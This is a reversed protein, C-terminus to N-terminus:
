FGWKTSSRRWSCGSVVHGLIDLLLSGCVFLIEGFVGCRVAYVFCWVVFVLVVFVLVVV